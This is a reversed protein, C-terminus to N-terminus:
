NAPNRPASASTGRTSPNSRHRQFYLNVNYLYRSQIRPSFPYARSVIAAKTVLNGGLNMRARFEDGIKFVVAWCEQYSWSTSYSQVTAKLADPVWLPDYGHVRYNQIVAAPIHVQVDLPQQPQRWTFQRVEQQQRQVQPQQLQQPPPLQQGQSQQYTNQQIIGQHNNFQVVLGQQPQHTAYRPFNQSFVALLPQGTAHPDLGQPFEPTPPMMPLQGYPEPNTSEGEGEERQEEAVSIIGLGLADPLVWLDSVSQTLEDNAATLRAVEKRLSALENTQNLIMYAKRNIISQHYRDQRHLTEHLNVTNTPTGLFSGPEPASTDTMDTDHRTNTSM